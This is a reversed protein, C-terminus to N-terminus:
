ENKEAAGQTEEAYQCADDQSPPEKDEMVKGESVKDTNGAGIEVEFQDCDVLPPIIPPLNVQLVPETERKIGLSDEVSSRESSHYSNPVICSLPTAQNDEESMIITIQASILPKNLNSQFKFHTSQFASNPIPKRPPNSPPPDEPSSSLNIPSLVPNPRPHVSPRKSRGPRDGSRTRKGPHKMKGVSVFFELSCLRFRSSHRLHVLPEFSCVFSARYRSAFCIYSINCNIFWKGWAVSRTGRHLTCTFNLHQLNLGSCAQIEGRFVPANEGDFCLQLVFQAGSAQVSSTSFVFPIVMYIARLLRSRADVQM